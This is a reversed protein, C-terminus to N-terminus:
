RLQDDENVSPRQIAPTESIVLPLEVERNQNVIKM